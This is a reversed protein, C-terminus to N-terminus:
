VSARRRRVNSSAAMSRREDNSSLLLSYVSKATGSWAAGSWVAGYVCFVYSRNIVAEVAARVHIVCVGGSDSVDLLWVINCNIKCVHQVCSSCTCSCVFLM